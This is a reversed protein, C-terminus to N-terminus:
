RGAARVAETATTFLRMDQETLSPLVRALNVQADGMLSCALLLLATRRPAVSGALRRASDAVYRWKVGIILEGNERYGEMGPTARFAIPGGAAEFMRIAAVLEPSAEAWRLIGAVLEPADTNLLVGVSVADPNPTPHRIAHLQRATERRANVAEVVEDAADRTAMQGVTQGDDDVLITDDSRSWYPLHYGHPDTRVLPVWGNAEAWARVQSEAYVPTRGIKDVPQIKPDTTQRDRAVYGRWTSAAIERGYVEALLALVRDTTLTAM